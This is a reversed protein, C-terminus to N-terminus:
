GRGVDKQRLGENTRSRIERQHRQLPNTTRRLAKELQVYLLTRGVDRWLANVAGPEDPYRRYSSADQRM